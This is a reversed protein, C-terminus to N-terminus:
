AQLKQFIQHPDPAGSRGFEEAHYILLTREDGPRENAGCATPVQATNMLREISLTIYYERVSM